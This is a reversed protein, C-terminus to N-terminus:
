WITIVRDQMYAALEHYNAIRDADLLCGRDKVELEADEGRYRRWLRRLGEEGEYDLIDPVCVASILPPHGRKGAIMPFVLKATTKEMHRALARFTEKRVAPMDGPLLFFAEERASTFGGPVLVRLGTKVSALMDTEAYHHNITIHVKDAPWVNRLLREVEGARYGLTVVLEAVGGAFMSDVTHEILTKGGIRLLPKFKKMRSSLGAAVILGWYRM